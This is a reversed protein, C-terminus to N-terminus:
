KTTATKAQVAKGHSERLRKELLSHARIEAAEPSVEFFAAVENITSKQDWIRIFEDEPMLLEAAFKDAKLEREDHETAKDKKLIPIAFTKGSFDEIEQEQELYDKDFKYHALEHALTFRNQTYSHNANLHITYKGKNNAIEGAKSDDFRRTLFVDLNLDKAIDVLPVPIMAKYNKLVTDLDKLTITM